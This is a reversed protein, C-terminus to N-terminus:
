LNVAWVARRHVFLVSPPSALQLCNRKLSSTSHGVPRAFLFLAQPRFVRGPSPSPAEPRRLRASPWTQSPVPRHDMTNPMADCMMVRPPARSTGPSQRQHEGRPGHATARAALAPQESRQRHPTKPETQVNTSHKPEAQGGNAFDSFRQFTHSRMRICVFAYPPMRICVFASSYRRICALAHSRM